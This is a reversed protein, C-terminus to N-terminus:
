GDTYIYEYSEIFQNYTGTSSSPKAILKLYVCCCLIQQQSYRHRKYVCRMMRRAVRVDIAHHQVDYGVNHSLVTLLAGDDVEFPSDCDPLYRLQKCRATLIIAKTIVLPIKQRKKNQKTNSM